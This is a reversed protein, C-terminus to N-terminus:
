NHWSIWIGLANKTGPQSSPLMVFLLAVQEVIIKKCIPEYVELGTM